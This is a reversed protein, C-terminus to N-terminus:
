NGGYLKSELKLLVQGHVRLVDVENHEQGAAGAIAQRDPCRFVSAALKYRVLAEHGGM